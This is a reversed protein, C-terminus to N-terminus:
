IARSCKTRSYKVLCYALKKKSHLIKQLIFERVERLAKIELALHGYLSRALSIDRFIFLLTSSDPQVIVPLEIHQLAFSMDQMMAHIKAKLMDTCYFLYKYAAFM